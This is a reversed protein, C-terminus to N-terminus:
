VKKKIYSILNDQDFLTFKHYFYYWIKDLKELIKKPIIQIFKLFFKVIKSKMNIESVEILQIGNNILLQNLRYYKLDHVPFVNMISFNLNTKKKLDIVIPVFNDFDPFQHVIFLHM